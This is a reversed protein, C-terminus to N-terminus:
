CDGPRDICLPFFEGIRIRYMSTMATIVGVSSVHNNATSIALDRGRTSRHGAQRDLRTRGDQGLIRSLNRLM